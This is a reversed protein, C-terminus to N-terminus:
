LQSFLRRSRSVSMEEMLGLGQDLEFGNSGKIEEGRRKLWHIPKPDGAHIFYTDSTDAVLRRSPNMHSPTFPNLGHEQQETYFHFPLSPSARM